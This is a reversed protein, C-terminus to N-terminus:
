IEGASIARLFETTRGPQADAVLGRAIGKGAGSLVTAREPQRYIRALCQSLAAVDDPAFLCESPALEVIGGVRSGLVCLGRAMAELMARPLGENRSPMAFVHCQDLLGNLQARTSIHGHFTVAAGVNQEEALIALDRRLMGDGVLDLTMNLGGRRLDAIARILLDYGKGSSEMSGVGIVRMPSLTNWPGFDRDLSEFDSDELRVNSASISPIDKPCPLQRQLIQRTVYITGSSHRVIYRCMQNYLFRPVGFAKPLGDSIARPEAVVNSILTTRKAIARLGALVSVIEPVRIVMQDSPELPIGVIAKLMDFGRRLFNRKKDDPGLSCIELREHSLRNVPGHFEDRETQRAVLVVNEAAALYKDFFQVSLAPHTSWWTGEEDPMVRVDSTVFIRVIPKSDLKSAKM